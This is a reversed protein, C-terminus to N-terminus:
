LFPPPCDHFNMSTFNLYPLNVKACRCFFHITIQCENRRSHYFREAAEAKDKQDIHLTRRRNTTHSSGFAERTFERLGKQWRSLLMGTDDVPRAPCYLLRWFWYKLILAWISFFLTLAARCQMNKREPINCETGSRRERGFLNDNCKVKEQAETSWKLPRISHSESHTKLFTGKKENNGQFIDVNGRDKIVNVM